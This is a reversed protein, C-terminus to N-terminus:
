KSMLSFAEPIVGNFKKNHLLSAWLAARPGCSARLYVKKAKPNKKSNARIVLLKFLESLLM